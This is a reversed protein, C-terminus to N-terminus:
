GGSAEGGGRKVTLLIAPRVPRVPAEADAALRPVPRYADPAVGRVAAAPMPRLCTEHSSKIAGLLQSNKM